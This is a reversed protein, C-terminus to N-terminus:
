MPKWFAELDWTESEEPQPPLSLFSESKVILELTNVPTEITRCIERIAVVFVPSQSTVCRWMLVSFPKNAFFPEWQGNGLLPDRLLWDFVLELVDGYM